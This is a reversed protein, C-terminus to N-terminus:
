VCMCLCVCVCEYLCVSERERERERDFHVKPGRFCLLASFSSIVLLFICAFYTNRFDNLFQGPSLSPQNVISAFKM